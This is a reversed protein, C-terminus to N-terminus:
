LSTMRYKKSRPVGGLTRSNKSSEACVVESWRAPFRPASSTRKRGIRGPKSWNKFVTLNNPRLGCIVRQHMSFMYLQMLLMFDILDVALYSVQEIVANYASREQRYATRAEDDTLTRWHEKISNLEHVFVVRRSRAATSHTVAPFWPMVHAYKNRTGSCPIRVRRRM